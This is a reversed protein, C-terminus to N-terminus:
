IDPLEDNSSVDSFRNNGNDNSNGGNNHRKKKKEPQTTKQSKEPKKEKATYDPEEIDGTEVVDNLYSEGGLLSNMMHIMSSLMDTSNDVNKTLEVIADQLQNLRQAELGALGFQGHSERLANEVAWDLWETRKMDRQDALADIEAIINDDLTVTVRHAGKRISM